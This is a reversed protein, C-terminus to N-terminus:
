GPIGEAVPPHLGLFFAAPKLRPLLPLWRGKEGYPAATQPLLEFGALHLGFKTFSIM